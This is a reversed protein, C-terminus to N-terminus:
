NLQIFPINFQFQLSSASPYEDMGAAIRSGKAFKESKIESIADKTKLESSEQQQQEKSQFFLEFIYLEIKPM